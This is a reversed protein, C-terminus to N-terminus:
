TKAFLDGRFAEGTTMIAWIIRALKNAIAVTVLRPSKKLLLNEIWDKLAGQRKKFVNLLSTSGLVLLKRIYKNGQKTISGLKQKGGSSNQRPTIGLFASLDRGTKFVRADPITARIATAVILGIGPIGALLQSVPDAKHPTAFESEIELIAKNLAKIQVRYLASCTKAAHPLESNEQALDVLDDLKNIGQAIILGFESLHGRLANALQTRQKILLERTKHLMLAAQQDATKIGVFRMDPRSVAECVAAADAADNKVRKVYPKVYIPPILKVEHGLSTIERACYHSSGCAEMAVLCPTITTFFALFKSRHLKRSIVVGGESELAHVQFYTKALDVGIRIYTTM